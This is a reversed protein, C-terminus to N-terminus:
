YQCVQASNSLTLDTIPVVAADFGGELAGVGNFGLDVGVEVGEVL